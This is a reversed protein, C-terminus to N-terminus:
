AFLNEWTNVLIGKDAKKRPPTLAQKGEMKGISVVGQHKQSDMVITLPETVLQGEGEFLSLYPAPISLRELTLDTDSKNHISVPTLARYPLRQLLEKDLRAHTYSGYCLEGKGTMGGMWTESLRQVPLERSVYESFHICLWLPASIYLTIRNEAPLILPSYPRVVVPRDALLPQMRIEDGMQELAVRTIQTKGNALAPPTEDAALPICSFAGENAKKQWSYALMWEHTQREVRLSLDGMEILLPQSISWSQSWFDATVPTTSKSNM